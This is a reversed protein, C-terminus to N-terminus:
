LCPVETAYGDDRYRCPFLGIPQDSEWRRFARRQPIVLAKDMLAAVAGSLDLTGIMPSGTAPDWGFAFDGIHVVENFQLRFRPLMPNPPGVLPVVGNAVRRTRPEWWCNRFVRVSGDRERYRRENCVQEQYTEWRFSRIYRLDPAFRYMWDGRRLYTVVYDGPPLSVRRFAPADVVCRRFTSCIGIEGTDQVQVEGTIPSIPAVGLDLDGDLRDTQALAPLMVGVVATAQGPRTEFPSGDFVDGGACAGLCLLLALWASKMSKMVGRFAGELFIMM